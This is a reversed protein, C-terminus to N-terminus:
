DLAVDLQVMVTTNSDTESMEIRDTEAEAGVEVVVVEESGEVVESAMEETELDEGAMTWGTWEVLQHHSPLM